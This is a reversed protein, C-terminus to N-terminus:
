VSTPATAILPEELQAILRSLETPPSLASAVANVARSARLQLAALFAGVHLLIGPTASARMSVGVSARPVAPIAYVPMSVQVTVLLLSICSRWCVTAATFHTRAM